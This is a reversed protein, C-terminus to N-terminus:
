IISQLQVFDSLPSGDNDEQMFYNRLKGIFKRAKQNTVREHETKYGDSEHEESWDGNKASIKEVITDVYGENENFCQINGDVSLFEDYNAVHQLVSKQKM